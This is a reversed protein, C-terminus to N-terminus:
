YADPKPLLGKSNEPITMTEKNNHLLTSNKVIISSEQIDTVFSRLPIIILHLVLSNRQHVPNEPSM